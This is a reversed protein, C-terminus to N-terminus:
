KGAKVKIEQTIEESADTKLWPRLFNRYCPECYFFNKDKWEKDWTKVVAPCGGCLCCYRGPWFGRLCLDTLM